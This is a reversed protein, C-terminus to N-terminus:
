LVAPVHLSSASDFIRIRYCHRMLCLLVRDPLNCQLCNRPTRSFVLTSSTTARPARLRHICFSTDHRESHRLTADTGSSLRPQQGNPKRLPLLHRIFTQIARCDTEDRCLPWIMPSCSRLFLECSEVLTCHQKSKMSSPTPTSQPGAWICLRTTEKPM